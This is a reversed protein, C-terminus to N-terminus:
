APVPKLMSGFFSKILLDLHQSVLIQEPLQGVHVVVHDSRRWLDAEFAATLRPRLEGRRWNGMDLYEDTLLGRCDYLLRTGPVLAKVM